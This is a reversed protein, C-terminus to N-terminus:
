PIFVAGKKALCKAYPNFGSETSSNPHPNPVVDSKRALNVGPPAFTTHTSGSAM